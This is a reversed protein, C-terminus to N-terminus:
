LINNDKDKYKYSSVARIAAWIIHIENQKAM